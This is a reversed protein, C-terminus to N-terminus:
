PMMGKIGKTFAIKNEPTMKKHPLISVFIATDLHNFYKNNSRMIPLGVSISIKEM